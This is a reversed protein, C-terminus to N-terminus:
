NDLKSGFDSYLRLNSPDLISHYTQQTVQLGQIDEVVYRDHPLVKKIVYPGKFLPLHKKNLGATTEINTRVVYDGM